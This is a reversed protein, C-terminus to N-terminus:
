VTGNDIDHRRQLLIRHVSERGRDPLFYTFSKQEHEESKRLSAFDAFHAIPFNLGALEQVYM